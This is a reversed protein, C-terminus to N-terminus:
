IRIQEGIPHDSVIAERGNGYTVQLWICDQKKSWFWIDVSGNGAPYSLNWVDVGDISQSRIVLVSSNSIWTVSSRDPMLVTSTVRSLLSPVEVGSSQVIFPNYEHPM